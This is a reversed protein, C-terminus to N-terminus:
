ESHASTQSAQGAANQRIDHRCVPCRVSMALWTVLCQRHYMHGCQRVRACQGSINDQCIACIGSGNDITEVAQNIQDPSATVPVSDFFNAPLNFTYTQTTASRISQQFIRSILELYCLENLLYRSYAAERGGHHIQNITRGLFINRGEVLGEILNLLQEDM